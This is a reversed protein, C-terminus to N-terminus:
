RELGADFDFSMSEPITAIAAGEIRLLKLKTTVGGPASFGGAKGNAALVRHCPIILPIPNAGLAQGVDRAAGPRGISRAIEGYTRTEGAPIQRAADYVEREFQGVSRLDVAVARFDQLRGAFHSRAKNIVEAIARPFSDSKRAGFSRAIQREMLPANQQPLHFGIVAPASGSDEVETWAIACTGIATEFLAYAAQDM